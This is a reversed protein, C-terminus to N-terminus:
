AICYYRKRKLREGVTARDHGDFGGFWRTRKTLGDCLQDPIEGARNEDEEDADILNEDARQQAFMTPEMRRAAIIKDLGHPLVPGDDARPFADAADAPAM